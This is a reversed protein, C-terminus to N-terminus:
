LLDVSISGLPQLCTGFNGLFYGFRERFLGLVFAFYELDLTLEDVVVVIEVVKEVVMVVVVAIVLLVVVGDRIVLEMVFRVEDM